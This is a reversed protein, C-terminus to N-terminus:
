ENIEEYKEALKIHNWKQTSDQKFTGIYNIDYKSIDRGWENEAILSMFRTGAGNPNDELRQYLHYERGMIPKLLMESDYIIKNWNFDEVLGEYAEKLEKFKKM